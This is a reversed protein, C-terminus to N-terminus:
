YLRITKELMQELSFEKEVKEKLKEGLETRKTQNQILDELAKQIENINGKEVLVGNQNDDLINPIGGVRSAIVPLSALGAELISYPLGEKRSTLTFIDFAKLYQNAADKFGVLFVKKDLGSKKILTELNKREEGEGIVIFVFPKEIKSLALIVYEHGKNKTLESITGIWVPHSESDSFLPLLEKRATETDKFEVNEIGNEVLQIKSGDIFPMAIAQVMENQAIVITTHCLELTLWSFFAIFGKSLTGRDENFSFGHVTQIIKRIGILRGALGGLGSAKPSNLHLVDPNERNIINFLQLFSKIESFLSIDRKLSGIEIVRIGESELKQKLTGGQGCVVLIDFRDKPLNTALSYVYKQAGGWVGKTVVYLIKTRTDPQM